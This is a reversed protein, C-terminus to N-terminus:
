ESLVGAQEQYADCSPYDRKECGNCRAAYISRLNSSYPCTSIRALDSMQMDSSIRIKGDKDEHAHPFFNRTM